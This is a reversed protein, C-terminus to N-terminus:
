CDETGSVGGEVLQKPPASALCFRTRRKLFTVGGHVTELSNSHFTDMRTYPRGTGGFGTVADCEVSLGNPIM